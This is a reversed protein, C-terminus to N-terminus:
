AAFVWSPLQLFTIERSLLVMVGWHITGGAAFYSAATNTKRAFYFSLGMVIALFSFFIILALNSVDYIM